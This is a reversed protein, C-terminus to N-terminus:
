IVASELLTITGESADMRANIGLPLTWKDKTHGFPAGTFVPVGLPKLKQELVQEM